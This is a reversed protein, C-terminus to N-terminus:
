MFSTHHHFFTHTYIYIYIYVCVCVLIIVIEVEKAWRNSNTEYANYFCLLCFNTPFILM